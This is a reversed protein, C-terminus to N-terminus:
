VFESLTEGAGLHLGLFMSTGHGRSPIQLSNCVSLPVHCTINLPWYTNRLANGFAVSSNFERLKGARGKSGESLLENFEGGKSVMVASM